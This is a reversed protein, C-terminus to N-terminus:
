ALGAKRRLIWELALLSVFLTLLHHNDWLTTEEIRRDILKSPGFLDPLSAAEPLKCFRGGSLEAMHRLSTHDATLQQLELGADPQITVPAKIIENGTAQVLEDFAKDGELVLEYIGPEPLPTELVADYIGPSSTRGQMAQTFLGIGDRMAKIRIAAGTVPSYDANSLKAKIHIPDGLHYSEEDTSLEIRAGEQMLPEEDEPEVKWHLVQWWFRHHYRDDAGYRLRWTSDFHFFVVRGAGIRQSVILPHNEALQDPDYSSAQLRDPPVAYALTKANRKARATQQRWTFPPTKEWVERSTRSDEAVELIRSEEGDPTWALRFPKTPAASRSQSFAVPLLKKFRANTFRHPMAHRGAIAILLAGEESVAQEIAKWGTENIANSPLDGLMIVDFGLWDKARSPLSTALSDGFKRGAHAPRGRLPALGHISEPRALVYQLEVSRDRGDLLNRLYRFEWRPFGDALLVEVADVDEPLEEEEPPAEEIIVTVSGQNNDSVKEGKIPEIEVRYNLEGLAEPVHAFRLTQREENANVKHKITDILRTGVYANVTVEHGKM